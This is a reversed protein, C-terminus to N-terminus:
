ALPMTLAIHRAWINIEDWTGVNIPSVFSSRRAGNEIYAEDVVVQPIELVSTM